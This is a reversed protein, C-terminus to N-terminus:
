RSPSSDSGVSRLTTLRRRYEEEDIEGRAYRAALIREPGQNQDLRTPTRQAGDALYRVLFVVAVVLLALWVLSSLTMLTYGWGTMGDHWWMM